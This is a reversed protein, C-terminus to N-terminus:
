DPEDWQEIIIDALQLYADLHEQNRKIIEEIRTHHLIISDTPSIKGIAISIVHIHWLTTRSMRQPATM